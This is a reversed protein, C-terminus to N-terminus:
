EKGCTVLGMGNALRTMEDALRTVQDDLKEFRAPDSKRVEYMELAIPLIARTTTLMRRYRITYSAPPTLASLGRTQARMLIAWQTMSNRTPLYPPGLSKNLTTIKRTYTKCVANAQRQFEVKGLPGAM